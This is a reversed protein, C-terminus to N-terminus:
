NASVEVLDEGAKLIEIADEITATLIEKLGANSINGCTIWIIKPPAGLENQLSIFDSDKTIVLHSIM